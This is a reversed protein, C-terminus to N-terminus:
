LGSFRHRRLTRVGPTPEADIAAFLKLMAGRSPAGLGENLSVTAAYEEEIGAYQGALRRDASLAQEVCTTDRANLRRTAHWPLLAEIEGPSLHQLQNRTAM